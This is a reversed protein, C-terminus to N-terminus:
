LDFWEGAEAVSAGAAEIRRRADSGPWQAPNTHNLHIFRVKRRESGPLAALRELTRTIFPHPFNSMDRGPIEGAAFFTGDLYAVDVQAVMEEIQVGMADWAEWSDIDPLYLASRRPGEILYGVTEAYEARHPAPIPTVTLGRALPVARGAELPRLLINEYEVLQSWPGNTKLFARMRPMAYVPTQRAGMAEHGLFMLGTYHGIHAHTLFIGSLEAPADGSTVSACLRRHQEPFDPTADFMWRDGTRPDVLGICAVRRRQDPDDWGPHGFSGAQPAGGDQATGLVVLAPGADRASAACGATLVVLSSAVILWALNRLV